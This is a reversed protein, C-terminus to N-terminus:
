LLGHYWALMAAAAVAILFVAVWLIKYRSFTQRITPWFIAAILSALGVVFAGYITMRHGGAIGESSISYLFIVCTVALLIFYLWFGLIQAESGDYIKSIRTTLNYKLSKELEIAYDVTEKLWLQHVCDILYLTVILLVLMCDISAKIGPTSQQFVYTAAGVLATILGFGTKRL